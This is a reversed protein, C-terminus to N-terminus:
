PRVRTLTKGRWLELDTHVTKRTGAPYTRTFWEAPLRSAMITRSAEPDGQAHAVGAIVHDVLQIVLALLGRACGAQVSLGDKKDSLWFQQGPDNLWHDDTLRQRGNGAQPSGDGMQPLFRHAVAHRLKFAQYVVEGTGLPDGQQDDWEVPRRYDTPRLPLGHMRRFDPRSGRWSRLVMLDLGDIVDTSGTLGVVRRAAAGYVTADTRGQGQARPPPVVLQAMTSNSTSRGTGRWEDGSAFVAIDACFREWAAVAALVTPENLAAAPGPGNVDQLEHLIVYDIGRSLNDQAAKAAEAFETARTTPLPSGLPAPGSVDKFRERRGVDTRDRSPRAPGDQLHPPFERSRGAPCNPVGSFDGPRRPPM